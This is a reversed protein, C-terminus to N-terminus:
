ASRCPGAEDAASRLRRCIGRRWTAVSPGRPRNGRCSSPPNARRQLAAQQLPLAPLPERGLSEFQEPELREILEAEGSMLALMRANGDPVYRVIIKQVDENSGGWYDAFREFTHGDASSGAYRYAGTGNMGAQLKAPDAVDAARLIPSYVQLFLFSHAPFDPTSVTFNLDDTVTVTVPGPYFARAIGPRSYYELSAKVDQATLEAGDHFKVGKKLTFSVTHGDILEYSEVLMLAPKLVDDGPVMPFKLLSDYALFECRINAQTTNGSPDWNGTTNEPSLWRVLGPEAAKAATGSIAFVLPVAASTMLFSRRTLKM